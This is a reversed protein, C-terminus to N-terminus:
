KGAEALVANFGAQVFHQDATLADTLGERQMVIFSICDTLSWSKDQRSRFLETGAQFLETTPFILRCLPDASFRDLLRVFAARDRPASLGDWSGTFIWATSVILGGFAQSFELARRHANDRSNLLAFFYFSDAFVSKV